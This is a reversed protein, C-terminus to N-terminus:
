SIFEQLEEILLRCKEIKYFSTFGYSEDEFHFKIVYYPSSRSPKVREIDIKKIDELPYVNENISLINYEIIKLTRTEIDFIWTAKNIGLLCFVALLVMFFPCCTELFVNEPLQQTHLFYSITGDWFFYISALLFTLVVIIEFLLRLVSSKYIRKNYTKSVCSFKPNVFM